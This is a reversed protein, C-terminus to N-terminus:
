QMVVMDGSVYGEIGEKTRVPIWGGVPDGTVVMVENFGATKLIDYNTGPGSRINPTNGEGSRCTKENVPEEATNQEPEPTPEEAPEPAPQQPEPAPQQPEPVTNEVAEEPTGEQADTNEEQGNVTGEGAETETDLIEQGSMEETMEQLAVEEGEHNPVNEVSQAQSANQGSLASLAPLRYNFVFLWILNLVAIGALIYPLNKKM